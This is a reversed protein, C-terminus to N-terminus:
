PPPGQHNHQKEHVAKSPYKDVHSLNCTNLTYFEINHYMGACGDGYHLYHVGEDGGFSDEHRGAMNGQGWAVVLRSEM